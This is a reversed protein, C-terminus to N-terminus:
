FQTMVGICVVNEFVKVLGFFKPAARDEDGLVYDWTEDRTPQSSAKIIAPGM